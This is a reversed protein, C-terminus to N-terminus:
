NLLSSDGGIAWVLVCLSIICELFIERSHEMAQASFRIVCLALIFPWKTM